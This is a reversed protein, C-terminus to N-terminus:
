GREGHRERSVGGRMSAAVSVPKWAEHGGPHLAWPPAGAGPIFVADGARGIMQAKPYGVRQMRMRMRHNCDRPSLSM